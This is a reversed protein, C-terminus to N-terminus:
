IGRRLVLSADAKTRINEIEALRAQVATWDAETEARNAIRERLLSKTRPIDGLEAAAMVMYQYYIDQQAHSAGLGSLEFRLPSLKELAGSFRGQHFDAIAEAASAALFSQGNTSNGAAKWQALASAIHTGEGSRALAMAQHPVTFLVTHDGLTERSATAIRDWRDGVNVGQFELRSLMSAANQIDLYFLSTRPYIEKDVLGLVEDLKGQAMKFLALHWWIHGRFLNYDNLKGAVSEIHAEGEKSRGQMEFVHALAHLSWLDTAHIELAERAYREALAFRGAEELAFALPGLILGYGPTEPSWYPLTQIAATLQRKKDGSWFLAGTLQRYALLDMPWKGIIEEWVANRGEHEGSVWHGLATIHLRERETVASTLKRARELYGQAVTTGSASGDTMISYGRLVNGLVFEPAEELLSELQGVTGPVYHYIDNLIQDYTKVQTATLGTVSLGRADTATSIQDSM